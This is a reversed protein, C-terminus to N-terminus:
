RLRERCPRGTVTPSRTTVRVAYPLPSSAPSTSSRIKATWGPLAASTPLAVITYSFPSCGASRTACGAPRTPPSAGVVASASRAPSSVSSSTMVPHSDSSVDALSRGAAHPSGRTAPTNSSPGAPHPLDSSTAAAAALAPDGTWSTDSSSTKLGSFSSSRSSRVTLPMGAGPTMNTSRRSATAPSSAMNRVWIAAIMRQNRSATTSRLRMATTSPTDDAEFSGTVTVDDGSIGRVRVM